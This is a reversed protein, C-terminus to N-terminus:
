STLFSDCRKYGFSTCFHSSYLGVKAFPPMFLVSYIMYSLPGKDWGSALVGNCWIHLFPRKVQRLLIESTYVVTHLVTGGRLCLLRWRKEPFSSFIKNNFKSKGRWFKLGKVPEPVIQMIFWCPTKVLRKKRKFLVNFLDVFVSIVSWCLKVSVLVLKYRTQSMLEGIGCNM